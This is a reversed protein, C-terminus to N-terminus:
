AFPDIPLEEFEVDVAQELQAIPAAPLSARTRAATLAATLNPGTDIEYHVREGFRARDYFGAIKTNIEAKIKIIKASPLNENNIELDASSKLSNDILLEAKTRQVEYYERELEENARLVYFFNSVLVGLLKLSEVLSYGQSYKVLVQKVLKKRDEKSLLVFRENARKFELVELQLADLKQYNTNGM